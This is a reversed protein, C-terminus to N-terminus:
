REVHTVPTQIGLEALVRAVEPGLWEAVELATEDTFHIGDPRLRADDTRSAVYGALDVTTVTPRSAAIEELLQNWLAMRAPDSEPQAQSPSVGDVRGAEIPPSLVLVVAIGRATIEDVTEALRRQMEDYLVPDDISRFTDDGPLKTDTVDWGGLQILAVDPDGAPISEIWHQQWDACYDPPPVEEGRLRRQGDGITGCGLHAWGGGTPDLVDLHDLAWYGLGTGTMLATSDGFVAIRPADSQVRNAQGLAEWDISPDFAPPPLEGTGLAALAEFDAQAGEFDIGPDKADATVAFLGVVIAAMAVLAAVPAHWGLLAKRHRIPQELLLYSAVALGITVAFRLGFLPWQSLGTAEEDLWIFVPWHILYGGYSVLGLAVIPKWALARRVPGAPQVAAVIVAVTLLAYLSLGGRYWWEHDLHATTWLAVMAVLAVAGLGAAIRSATPTLPTRRRSWWLAAVAGIVLEAARVDTGFYLRDITAGNSSLWWGAGISAAIVAGLGVAIPRTAGKGLVLLGVLLPPFLLYYQEEIALTWFHQFPSETTFLAGYSDGVAIFRWNAVYFLSALGDGRLRFLQSADALFASAVTIGAITLLSAPLLRRFRRRWFTGLAVRDTSRHEALLLSAILFGSLTFFTSVSLFAGPAWSFGAHFFFIALLALARLGDLAPQYALRGSPADATSRGGSPAVATM